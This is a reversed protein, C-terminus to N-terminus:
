QRYQWGWVNSAQADAVEFLGSGYGLLGEAVFDQGMDVDGCNQMAHLKTTEALILGDVDAGCRGETPELADQHFIAMHAPTLRLAKEGLESALEEGAGLSGGPMGLIYLERGIM